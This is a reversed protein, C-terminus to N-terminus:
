VEMFQAQVNNMGESEDYGNSPKDVNPQNM